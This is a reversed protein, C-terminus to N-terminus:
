FRSAHMTASPQSAASSCVRPVAQMTPNWLTRCHAHTHSVKPSPPHCAPLSLCVHTLLCTGYGLGEGAVTLDAFFFRVGESERGSGGEHPWLPPAQRQGLHLQAADGDCPHKREGDV